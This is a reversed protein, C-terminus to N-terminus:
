SVFWHELSLDLLELDNRHFLCVLRTFYRFILVLRFMCFWLLLLLFVRLFALVALIM